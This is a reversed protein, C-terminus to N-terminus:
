DLRNLSNVAAINDICQSSRVLIQRNYQEVVVGPHINLCAVSIGVLVLHEAAM